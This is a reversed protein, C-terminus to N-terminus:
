EYIVTLKEVKDESSLEKNGFLYASINFIGSLKREYHM